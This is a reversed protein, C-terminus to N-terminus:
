ESVFFVFWGKVLAADDTQIIWHWFCTDVSVIVEIFWLYFATTSM